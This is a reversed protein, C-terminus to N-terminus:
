PKPLEKQGLRKSYSARSRSVFFTLTATSDMARFSICSMAGDASLQVVARRYRRPKGLCALYAALQPSQSLFSNTPVGSHIRVM